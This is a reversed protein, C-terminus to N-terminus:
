TIISFIPAMAARQLLVIPMLYAVLTPQHHLLDANRQTVIHVLYLSAPHCHLDAGCTRSKSVITPNTSPKPM